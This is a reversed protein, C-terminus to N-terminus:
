PTSARRRFGQFRELVKEIIADMELLLGGGAGEDEPREERLQQTGELAASDVVLDVMGTGGRIVKGVMIRSSVSSLTDVEQFVAAQVLQDVTKEFAVRSLPDTELKTLGYRNVPTVNGLHTMIDVLLSVHQFNVEGGQSSFVKSIEQILVARTAEVGLVVFCTYLDSTYLRPQDVGKLGGLDRFVQPGSGRVKLVFEKDDRINGTDEDVVKKTERSLVVPEGTMGSFFFDDTLVEAVTKLIALSYSKLDFVFCVEPDDPGNESNSVVALATVLAFSDKEKKRMAREFAPWARVVKLKVELLSLHSDLLKERDVSFRLSFAYGGAAAGVVPYVTEESVGPVATGGFFLLEARSSLNRLSMKRVRNLVRHANTQDTMYVRFMGGKSNKTFNVLEKLRVVENVGGVVDGVGAMHFTNLTFQTLPEGISQAALVGVMECPPVVNRNFSDTMEHLLEQFAEKSMKYESVVRPPCLYEYLLVKLLTKHLADHEFFGVGSDNVVCLRTCRNGLFRQLEENVHDEDLTPDERDSGLRVLILNPLNFPLFFKERVIKPDLTADAQVKRLLDRQERMFASWKKGYVKRVTADDYHVLQSTVVYQSAAQYGSDGYVFQVIGGTANRVTGDYAVYVDETAKITKRQMYGTDATKIATDITGVRSSTMHFFFETPTLGELFCSEVFGRSYAQDDQKCFAPLSRRDLLKPVLQESHQMMQQGLCSALQVVNTLNGKAGSSVEVFFANEFGLTQFTEKALVDRFRNLERYMVKEFPGRRFLRNNENDTVARAVELTKERKKQVVARSVDDRLHLDGYGLSFGRYQMLWRNCLRQVDDMFNTTVQPGYMQLILHPLSNKVDGLQQKSLRGKVVEGKEVHVGGQQLTVLEPVLLSFVEAGTYTKGKTVRLTGDLFQPLLSSTAALNMLVDWGVRTDEDTLLFAGLLSDQLLHIIPASHKPSIIHRKIDALMRLEISSQVSQPAFLNMEDGDFDANYPKTATVNLRFTMLAPDRIVRVRHAMMNMKHLSPQRNFLVVDDDLLHRHVIWNYRLELDASKFRLDIKINRGGAGKAHTNEVFNAGPYTDRGNRVLQTLRDINYPTVLEPYTLTTAVALPVGVEDVATNPDSSIVTRASFDVRKGLLNGRFRGLKGGRFRSTISKAVNGSGKVECRPLYVSDNDYYTALHYQLCDQYPKLYKSDADEKEKKLKENFKVIDSLKHTLVNEAYGQALFDGRNSPRICVPPVAFNTIILKEPNSIGIMECDERSINRLLYYCDAASLLQRVKKKGGGEDSAETSTVDAGSAPYDAAVYLVGNSKKFDVSLKPVPVGSYPSVKVSSCLNRVEAFRYKRNSAILKKALVERPILLRCSRLCICSLVGKVFHVFGFHFCPQALTIHGFHGPCDLYSKKCTMCLTGFDNVGLHPDLLGQLKPENGEYTEGYIVGEQELVSFRQVEKNTFVDFQIMELTTPPEM